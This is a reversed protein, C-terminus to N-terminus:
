YYTQALPANKFNEEVSKAWPSTPGASHTSFYALDAVLTAAAYATAGKGVIKAIKDITGSGTGQIVEAVIAALIAMHLKTDVLQNGMFAQLDPMHINGGLARAITDLLTTAQDVLLGGVGILSANKDLMSLVKNMTGNIQM